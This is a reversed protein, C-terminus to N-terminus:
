AHQQHDVADDGHRVQAEGDAPEDHEREGHAADQEIRNYDPDAATMLRTEALQHVADTQGAKHDSGRQALAEGLLVLSFTEEVDQLLLAEPALGLKGKLLCLVFLALRLRPVSLAVGLRHVPGNRSRGVRAHHEVREVLLAGIDCGLEGLDLRDALVLPPVDPLSLDLDQRAASQTGASEPVHDLADEAPHVDGDLNRAAVELLSGHPELVQAVFHAHETAQPM